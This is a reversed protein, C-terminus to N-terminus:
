ECPKKPDRCNKMCAKAAAVTCGLGVGPARGRTIVIATANLAQCSLALSLRCRRECANGPLIGDDMLNRTLNEIPDPKYPNYTDSGPDTAPELIILGTPNVMRTPQGEVYAYTNIGGKLGIPDVQTYGGKLAQYERHHNQHLNTEADYM